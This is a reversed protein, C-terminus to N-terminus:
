EDYCAVHPLEPTLLPLAPDRLAVEQQLSAPIGTEVIFVDVVGVM